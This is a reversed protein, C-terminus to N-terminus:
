SRERTGKKHSKINKNGVKGSGKKLKKKYRNNTQYIRKRPTLRDKLIMRVYEMLTKGDKKYFGSVIIPGSILMLTISAISDGLHKRTIFYVGIGVAGGILLSALQRGTLGFIIKPKIEGLDRPVEVYAM